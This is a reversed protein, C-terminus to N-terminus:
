TLASLLEIRTADLRGHMLLGARVAQTGRDLRPV